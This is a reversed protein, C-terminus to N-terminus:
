FETDLLESPPVMLADAIIFLTLINIKNAGEVRQITSRPLNSIDALNQQTLGLNIRLEKVFLSLWLLRKKNAPAIMNTNM